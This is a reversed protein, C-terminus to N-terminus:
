KPFNKFLTEQKKINAESTLMLNQTAIVQQSIEEQIPATKDQEAVEIILEKLENFQGSYDKVDM